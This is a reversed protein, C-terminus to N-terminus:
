ASRPRRSWSATPAAGTTTPRAPGSPGSGCRCGTCAWARQALPGVRRITRAGTGCCPGPAPPKM